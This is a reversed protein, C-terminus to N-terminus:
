YHENAEERKERDLLTRVDVSRLGGSDMSRHM